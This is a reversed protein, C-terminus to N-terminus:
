REGMTLMKHSLFSLVLQTAPIAQLDRTESLNKSFGAGQEAV